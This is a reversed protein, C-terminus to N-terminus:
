LCEKRWDTHGQGAFYNPQLISCFSAASSAATIGVKNQLKKWAYTRKILVTDMWDLGIWKFCLPLVDM